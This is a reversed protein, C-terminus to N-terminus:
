RRLWIFTCRLQVDTGERWFRLGFRGNFIACVFWSYPRCVLSREGWWGGRGVLSAHYILGYKPTDKHTKLARFLAKEAGLIQVTSAPHKALNMLSGVPCITGFCFALFSSLIVIDLQGPNILAVLTSMKHTSQWCRKFPLLSPLPLSCVDTLSETCSLIDNEDGGAKRMLSKVLLKEPPTSIPRTTFYCVQTLSLGLESM